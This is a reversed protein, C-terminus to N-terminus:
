RRKQYKRDVGMQGILMSPYVRTTAGSVTHVPSLFRTEIANMSITFFGVLNDKYRVVWFAALNNALYTRAKNIIFDQVGLPDSHDDERCDLGSLNDRPSLPYIRLKTPDVPNTM